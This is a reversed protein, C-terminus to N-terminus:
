SVPQDDGSDIPASSEESATSDSSVPQENEGEEFHLAMKKM